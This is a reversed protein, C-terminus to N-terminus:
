MRLVHRIDQFQHLANVSLTRPFVDPYPGAVLKIFEVGRLHLHHIEDVHQDIAFKHLIQFVRRQDPAAAAVLHYM